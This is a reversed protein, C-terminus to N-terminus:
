RSRCVTLLCMLQCYNVCLVTDGVEQLLKNLRSDAGGMTVSSMGLASVETVLSRVDGKTTEESSGSIYERNQWWLVMLKANLRTDLM